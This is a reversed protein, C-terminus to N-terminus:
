RDDRFPSKREPPKWDDPFPSRRGSPPDDGFPSEPGRGADERAADLITRLEQESLEFPDTAYLPVDGRRRPSPNGSVPEFRWDGKSAVRIEWRRGAGDVFRRHSM